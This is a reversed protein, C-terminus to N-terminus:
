PAARKANELYADFIMDFREGDTTTMSDSFKIPPGDRRLLWIEKREYPGFSVMEIDSWRAVEERKGRRYRVEDRDITLTPSGLVRLRFAIWVAAAMLGLSALLPGVRGERFWGVLALLSLLAFFLAPWSDRLPPLTPRFTRAALAPKASM